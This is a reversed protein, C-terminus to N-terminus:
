ATHQPKWALLRSTYSLDYPSTPQASVGYVVHFGKLEAEVCRRFLSRIDQPGIWLNRFKDKPPIVPNYHGIRVAIFSTLQGEDVFLRGTMEGFAKSIGYVTHPRPLADSDIKSGECTYCAPALTKELAKVAHNSSAYVIRPVHYRVAAEIVNWTAQINDPLLQPWTAKPSPNAALHIVVGAGEFASMWRPLRSKSWPKRYSRVRAQALDAVMSQRGPVPSRDILYLEHLDSLEEVIQSGIKGAAGTIIVRM